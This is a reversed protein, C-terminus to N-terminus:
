ERRQNRERELAHLVARDARCGQEAAVEADVPEAAHDQREDPDLQDVQDHVVDEPRLLTRRHTAAVPDQEPHCRADPLRVPHQLFAPRRVGVPAVDHDAVELRVVPGLGGRERFPELLHRAQARAVAPELELLHVDVRDDAPRRLQRQDVLERVRVDRFRAVLLAPLVDVLHEVAPISTIEVTLM